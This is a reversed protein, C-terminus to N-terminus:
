ALHAVTWAIGAGLRGTPDNFHGGPNWVFASARVAGADRLADAFAQTAAGVQAIRANRVRPEKKGLSLYAVSGAPAQRGQAWADWGPFWLSGSCCALGRFAGSELFAWAAFLGALSYGAIARLRASRAGEIAPICDDLLWALTAPGDGAFAEGYAGKEEPWPSLAANWDDAACAVFTFSALQQAAAQAIAEADDGHARDIFAYCVPADPGPEGVEVVQVARGAITREAAAHVSLGEAAAAQATEAAAATAAARKMEAAM